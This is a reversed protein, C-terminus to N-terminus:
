HVEPPSHPSHGINDSCELVIHRMIHDHKGVLMIKGISCVHDIVYVVSLKTQLMIVSDAKDPMFDCYCGPMRYQDMGPHTKYADNCVGGHVCKWTYMISLVVQRWWLVVSVLITRIIYIDESIYAIGDFSIVKLNVSVSWCKTLM